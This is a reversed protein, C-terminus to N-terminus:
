TSRATESFWPHSGFQNRPVPEGRTVFWEVGQIVSSLYAKLRPRVWFLHPLWRIAVPVGQLVHPRVVIRLACNEADTPTIRWAVFSSRGGIEGIDLDYGIGDIWRTFRREYVLGNLYHVEDRSGAGPWIKVPNRKCFPHCSELNGPVSIVAWVDHAPAAISRTVGVPWKFRQVSSESHDDM